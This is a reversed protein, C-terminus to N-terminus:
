QKAKPPEPKKPEEPKRPEGPKPEGPKPEEPKKPEGPKQGPQGPYRPDAPSQAELYKSTAERMMKDAKAQAEAISAEARQKAWVAEALAVPGPSGDYQKELLGCRKVREAEMEVSDGSRYPVGDVVLYDHQVIVKMTAM